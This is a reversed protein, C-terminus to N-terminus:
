AQEKSAVAGVFSEELSSGTQRKLDELSGTQVLRGRDIIVVRDAVREVEHLLHSSFLVTRGEHQILQIISELFARRVLVDLGTAPEDLILLEPDGGLALALALQAQTGRSLHRVKQKPDIGFRSLLEDVLTDNWRRYFAATFKVLEGVKMWDYLVPAESVYGIRHMLATHNRRSDLGLLSITGATPDALNMLMRIVTSKGAGNRGLFGCVSGAPVEFSLNDVAVRNGFRKTLGEVAIAPRSM